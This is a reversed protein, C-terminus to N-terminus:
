NELTANILVVFNEKSPQVVSTNLGNLVKELVDTLLDALAPKVIYYHAGNKYAADIDKIYHSTSYIVVPIHELADNSKIACLSELGNKYPMNLDLFIIDPLLETSKLLNLCELGNNARAVTYMPFVRAIAETLFMYDDIDDEAILIRKYKIM